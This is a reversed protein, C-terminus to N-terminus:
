SYREEYWEVLLNGALRPVEQHSRSSHFLACWISRGYDMAEFDDVCPVCLRNHYRLVGDGGQSFVEMKQDKVLEKLKVLSSDKDQKKKM